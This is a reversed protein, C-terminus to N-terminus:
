KTKKELGGTIENVKGIIEEYDEKRLDLVADLVNETSGNISIVVLEIAKEEAKSTISLDFDVDADQGSFGNVKMNSLYVNKIERFERGIIYDKFEVVVGNKTTIQM